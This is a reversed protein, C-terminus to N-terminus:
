AAAGAPRAAVPAAVVEVRDFLDHPASLAYRQGDSTSMWALLDFDGVPDIVRVFIERLGNVETEIVTHLPLDGPVGALTTTIPTPPAPPAVSLHTNSM